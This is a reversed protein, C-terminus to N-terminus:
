PTADCKSFAIDCIKRVTSQCIQLAKGEAELVSSQVAWGWGGGGPEDLAISLCNRRYTSVIKCLSRAYASASELTRCSELAQAEAVNRNPADWSYGFAIGDEVVSGPVGVALAGYSLAIPAHLLLLACCVVSPFGRNLRMRNNRRV